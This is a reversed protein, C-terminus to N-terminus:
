FRVGLPKAVGGAAAFVVVLWWAWWPMGFPVWDSDRVPHEVEIQRVADHEIPAEDTIAWLLALGRSRAPSVATGAVAVLRKTVHTGGVTLGVGGESDSPCGEGSPLPSPCRVWATTGHQLVPASGAEVVAERELEVRLLVPEDIPLPDLGYRAEMQLLLFGFPITLIVIAPLMAATYAGSWWLLRGQATLVRRPSDLYLRMEYIAAAMQDRPRLLWRAPTVRAFVLLMVVGSWIGVVTVGLADPLLDTPILCGDAIRRLIHLLSSM